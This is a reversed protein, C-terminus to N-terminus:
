FAGFKLVIDLSGALRSTDDPVASSIIGRVQPGISARIWTVVNLDLRVAGYPVFGVADLGAWSVSGVGAGGELSLHVARYPGVIGGVFLGGDVIRIPQGVSTSASVSEGFAGIVLNPTAVWGARGAQRTSIRGGVLGVGFEPGGYGGTGRGEILVDMQRNDASKADDGRAHAPAAVVLSLLAGLAPM